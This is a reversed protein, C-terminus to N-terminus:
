QEAKYKELITRLLSALASMDDLHQQQLQQRLTRNEQRLSEVEQELELLSNAFNTFNM